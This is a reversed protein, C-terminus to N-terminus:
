IRRKFNTPQPKAKGIGLMQALDLKPEARTPYPDPLSPPMMSLIGECEIKAWHWPYARHGSTPIIWWYGLSDCETCDFFRHDEGAM